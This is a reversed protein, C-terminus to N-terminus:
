DLLAQIAPDDRVPDFDSDDRAFERFAPYLDIARELSAAVTAADAGAKSDFCALNYYLGAADPKAVLAERLVDAAETYREERYFKM